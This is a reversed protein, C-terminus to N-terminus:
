TASSADFLSGGFPDSEIAFGYYAINWNPSDLIVCHRSVVSITDPYLNKIQLYFNEPNGGQYEVVQQVNQDVLQNEIYFELQGFSFQVIL